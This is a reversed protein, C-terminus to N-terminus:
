KRFKAVKAVGMETIALTTTGDANDKRSIFGNRILSNTPKSSGIGALDEIFPSTLLRTTVTVQGNSIIKLINKQATTIQM